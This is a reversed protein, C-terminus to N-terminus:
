ISMLRTSKIRPFIAFAGGDIFYFLVRKLPSGFYTSLFFASIGMSVAMNLLQLKNLKQLREKEV